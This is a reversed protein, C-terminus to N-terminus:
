SIKLIIIFKLKKKYKDLSYKRGIEKKNSNKFYNLNINEFESFNFKKGGDYHYKVIAGFGMMGVFSLFLVLFLPYTFFKKFM